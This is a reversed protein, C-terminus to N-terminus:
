IMVNHYSMDKRHLDKLLPATTNMAIGLRTKCIKPFLDYLGKFNVLM